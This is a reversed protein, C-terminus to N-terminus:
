INIETIWYGHINCHAIVSIEKGNTKIKINTEPKINPSLSAISVLQKDIYIYIKQIFHEKIMPHELEGVSVYINKYGNEIDTVKIVPLHKKESEGTKAVDEKTYLADEKEDFLNFIKSCSNCSPCDEPVNETLHVYGCVSCILAKKM